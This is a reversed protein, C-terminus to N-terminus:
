RGASAGASGSSSTAGDLRALLARAAPREPSDYAGIAVPLIVRRAADDRGRAALATALELRTAPAAPVEEMAKQLGDIAVVPPEQHAVVFSQYFALLPEVAYPDRRNAAVILKRGAAVGADRAGAPGQAAALVTAMGQWTMARPDGPSLAVAREAAALCPAAHDSRCEAEALLLQADRDAPFREAEKQLRALWQDRKKLADTRARDMTRATDPPVDNPVAAPIALCAGLELRGRVFAAEGETLRRVIPRDGDAAPVLTVQEYPKRAGYYTRLERALQKLDGFVQAATAADVGNARQTLYQRLQPRRSDSFFLFHTLLWAHIPTWGTKHTKETLYRDNLIDALPFPGFENLVASTGRPSRGFEVVNDGKM